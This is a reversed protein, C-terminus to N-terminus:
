RGYADIGSTRRGDVLVLRICVVVVVVVVVLGAAHPLPVHALVIVDHRNPLDGRLRAGYAELRVQRVQSVQSVKAGRARPLGLLM